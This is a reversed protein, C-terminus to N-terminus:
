QPQYRDYTRVRSPKDTTKENFIVRTNNDYLAQCLISLDRDEELYVYDGRQFSYSSIYKDLKLNKLVSRKVKGYSHSPDSYVTISFKKEKEFV